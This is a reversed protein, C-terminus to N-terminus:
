AHFSALFPAHIKKSNEAPVGIRLVMHVRVRGANSTTMQSAVGAPQEGDEGADDPDDIGRVPGGSLGPPLAGDGPGMPLGGTCVGGGPPAGGAGAPSMGVGGAGGGPPPGDGVGGGIGGAM